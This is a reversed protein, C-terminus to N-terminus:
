DRKYQDRFYRIYSEKDRPKCGVNCYDLYYATPVPPQKDFYINARITMPLSGAPPTLAFKINGMTKPDLIGLGGPDMGNLWPNPFQIVMSDPALGTSHFFKVDSGFVLVQQNGALNGTISSPNVGALTGKKLYVVVKLKEKVPGMGYNQFDVQVRYNEPEYGRKGKGACSPFVLIRNPDHPSATLEVTTSTYTSKKESEFTKDSGSIWFAGITSHLFNRNLLTVFQSPSIPPLSFFFNNEKSTNDITNRVVFYNRYQSINAQAQIAAITAASLQGSLQHPYYVELSTNARIYPVFQPDLDMRETANLLPQFATTDNSNYMVIFYGKNSQYPVIFHTTEGPRVSGVHPVLKIKDERGLLGSSNNVSASENVVVINGSRAYERRPRAITDYFYTAVGFIKSSSSFGLGYEHQSSQRTSFGGDGYELVFTTFPSDAGPTLPNMDDVLRPYNPPLNIDFQVPPQYQIVHDGELLSLQDGSHTGPKDATTLILILALSLLGIVSNKYKLQQLPSAM